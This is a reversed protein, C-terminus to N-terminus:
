RVGPAKRARRAILGLTLLRASLDPVLALVLLGTTTSGVSMLWVSAVFLAGAVFWLSVLEFQFHDSIVGAIAVLSFVILSWGVFDMTASDLRTVALIGATGTLVYRVVYLFRQVLKAWRPQRIYPM